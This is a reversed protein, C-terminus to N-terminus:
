TPCASEIIAFSNCHKLFSSRGTTWGCCRRHAVQPPSCRRSSGSFGTLPSRGSWWTSCVLTHEDIMSAVKVAKGDLSSDFQLNIAWVVNPADVEIPPIWSVGARKRPSCVRVQLGEERWLRHMKKNVELREDYRLALFVRRFGHRSHTTAYSRIWARMDIDLDAPTQSMPLRHTTLGVAKRWGESMGLTTTLMDVARRKAAPSLIERRSEYRTSSWSPEALGRCDPTRRVCSKSNRPLM